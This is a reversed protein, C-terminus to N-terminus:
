SVAGSPAVPGKRSAAGNLEEAIARFPENLNEKAEPFRRLFDKARERHKEVFTDLFTGPLRISMSRFLLYLVLPHASDDIFQCCKHMNEAGMEQALAQFREHTTRLLEPMLTRYDASAERYKQMLTQSFQVNQYRVKDGMIEQVFKLYGWISYPAGKFIAYLSSELTQIVGPRPPGLLEAYDEISSM